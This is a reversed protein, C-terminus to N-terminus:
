SSRIDLNVRACNCRTIINYRIPPCIYLLRPVIGVGMGGKVLKTGDRREVGLSVHVVGRSELIGVVNIIVQGRVFEM